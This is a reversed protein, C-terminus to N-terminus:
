RKGTYRLSEGIVIDSGGNGPGRLESKLEVVEGPVENSLVLTYTKEAFSEYRSRAPDDRYPTIRIETASVQRGAVPVDITRIQASEALAMRIRKRYYSSSGKTLRNMERVERELFFLILPNGEAHELEPLEFKRTGTLFEVRAARGGNKDSAGLTVLTRDDVNAELTGRKQYAYELVAKSGVNRWHNESFLRREAESFESPEAARAASSLAVLVWLVALGVARKMEDKM